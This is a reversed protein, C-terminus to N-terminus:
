ARRRPLSSVIMVTGAFALGDGILDHPGLPTHVYLLWAHASLLLLFGIAVRLSGVDRRVRHNLATRLSLYFWGAVEVLRLTPELWFLLPAFAAVGSGGSAGGDGTGDAGGAGDDVPARPPPRYVFAAVAMAALLLGHHLLFLGDHVDFTERELFVDASGEFLGVGIGHVAWAAAFLGLFAVLRTLRPDQVWERLGHVQLAGWGAVGAVGFPLLVSLWDLFAM